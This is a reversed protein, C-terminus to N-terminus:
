RGACAARKTFNAMAEFGLSLQVRDVRPLGGAGCDRPQLARGALIPNM